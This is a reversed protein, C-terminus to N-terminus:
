RLTLRQSSWEALLAQAAAPVDLQDRTLSADGARASKLGGFGQKRLKVDALVEATTLAAATRIAEPIRALGHTYTLEWVPEGLPILAPTVVYTSALSYTVEFYGLRDAVFVSAPPVQVKATTGVYLTLAVVAVIPRRAPYLRGNDRWRHRETRQTLVPSWGLHADVLRSATLIHRDLQDNTLLSGDIDTLDTLDYDRFEVASLYGMADGAFPDSWGGPNPPSGAARVYRTVYWQGSAGTLDTYSYAEVGATLVVVNGLSTFTGSQAAADASTAARGVEVRDYGQALVTAIDSVFIRLKIM